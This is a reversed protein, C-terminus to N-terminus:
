ALSETCSADDEEIPRHWGDGFQDVMPNVVSIVYDHRGLRTLPVVTDEESETQKWASSPRDSDMAATGEMLIDM